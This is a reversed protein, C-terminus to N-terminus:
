GRENVPVLTPINKPARPKDYHITMDVTDNLFNIKRVEVRDIALGTRERLDALLKEQNAPTILDVRDYTIIRSASFHFGWEKELAYLLAVIVGNAILLRAINSDSMLVSNMVPLAIVIFLYTMERIPMEDTRYRLVSFIAFLGFGVGISLEASTLLGMVFYIVTNFALFTFVYIKDQTVPYYIFRVILVAVLLNLGAGLLLYFLDSSM